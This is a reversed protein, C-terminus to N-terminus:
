DNSSSCITKGSTPNSIPTATGAQTAAYTAGGILSQLSQNNKLLKLKPLAKRIRTNKQECGFNTSEKM